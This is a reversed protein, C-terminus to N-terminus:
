RSYTGHNQERLDEKPASGMNYSKQRDENEFNVFQSVPIISRRHQIRKGYKETLRELNQALLTDSSLRLESFILVFLANIDGRIFCARGFRM